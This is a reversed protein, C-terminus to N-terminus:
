VRNTHEYWDLLWDVLCNSATQNTVVIMYKTNQKLVIESLERREVGTKNASGRQYTWIVTGGTPNTPTHTLTMTATTAVNRNRNLAAIATGDADTTVGETLTMSLEQEHWIDFLAHAWQTTNPTKIIIRYSAGNGLDVVGKAYFHSGSHIEHHAYDIVKIATSQDEIADGYNAVIEALDVINDDGDYLRGGGPIMQDRKAM